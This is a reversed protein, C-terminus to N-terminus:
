EGKNSGELLNPSIYWDRFKQNHIKKRGENVEKRRAESAKRIV